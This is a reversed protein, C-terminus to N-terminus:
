APRFGLRTLGAGAQEAPEAGPWRSASDLPGAAAVVLPEAACAYLRGRGYGSLGLWVSGWFRGRLRSPALLAEGPVVTLGPVPAPLTGPLALDVLVGPGFPVPLETPGLTEAGVWLGSDLAEAPRVEVGLRELRRAVARSSAHARVTYGDAVLAAALGFGVPTGAGLLDVTAPPPRHARVQQHLAWTTSPWGTTVPVQVREALWSGRSLLYPLVSALGIAEAGADELLRAARLTWARAAEPRERLVAPPAPLGAVLLSAPGQPTALGVEAWLGVADTSGPGGVLVPFHRLKVGAPRLQWGVLPHVIFGARIM